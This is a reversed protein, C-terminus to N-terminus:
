KAREVVDILRWRKSRSMPRCEQIRVTDGTGADNSEDHAHLKISTRMIKHYRKHRRVVDIRVTITKDAKDSVVIGQRVKARGPGHEPAHDPEPAPRSERLEANKSKLGARYRRREAATHERKAKREAAREEPSTQGRPKRRASRREDLRERRTTAAPGAPSSEGTGTSLTSQTDAPAEEAAAAETETAEPAETAEAETAEPTETPTDGTGTSSTSQTDTEPTEEPTEAM